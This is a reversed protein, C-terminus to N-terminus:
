WRPIGTGDQGESVRQLCDAQFFTLSHVFPPQERVLVRVAGLFRTARSRVGKQDAIVAPHNFGVESCGYISKYTLVERNREKM